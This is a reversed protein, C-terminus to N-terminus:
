RIKKGKYQPKNLQFRNAGATKISRQSGGHAAGGTEHSGAALKVSTKIQRAGSPYGGVNSGSGTSRSPVSYTQGKHCVDPM